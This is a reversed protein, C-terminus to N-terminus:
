VQDPDLSVAFRRQGQGLRTIFEKKHDASVLNQRYCASNFIQVSKGSKCHLNM